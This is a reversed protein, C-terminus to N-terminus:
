PHMKAWLTAQEYAHAVRYISRPSRSVSSRCGSRCGSNSFGTPVSLAPSGTINFPARAQRGYTYEVRGYREIRDLLAHTYEVSSLKKARLLDSAEAVTLWALDSM